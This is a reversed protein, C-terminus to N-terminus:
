NVYKKSDKILQQLISDTQVVQKIKKYIKQIRQKCCNLKTAIQNLTIGSNHKLNYIQFEKKSILTKLRAEFKLKNNHIKNLNNYDDFVQKDINKRFYFDDINIEYSLNEPSINENISFESDNDVFLPISNYESRKYKRYFESKKSNYQTTVITAFYGALNGDEWIKTLKDLDLTFLYLLTDQYLDEFAEHSNCLRKCDSKLKTDAAVIAWITQITIGSLM